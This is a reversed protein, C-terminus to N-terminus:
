LPRLRDAEEFWMVADLLAVMPRPMREVPLADIIDAAFKAKRGAATGAFRHLQAEITRARQAPQTQFMQFRTLEGRAALTELVLESGAAAIVEQELDRECAFFGLPEPEGDATLMGADVLVRIVYHREAGDYLGLVRAPHAESRLEALRRRLNTIGGMDVLAISEPELVTDLRRAVAGFALLDSEGEFLVVTRPRPTTKPM